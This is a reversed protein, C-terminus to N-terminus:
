VLLPSFYSQRNVKRWAKPSNGYYQRFQRFFHNISQYGVVEAIEEVSKETTLLLSKAAALRRRIIWRNLPEGTQSKVFQTLYAPSFGLNKAVDRLSISEQYHENIYDYVQKLQSSSEFLNAFKSFEDTEHETSASTEQFKQFKFAFWQKLISRRKIQASISGVLQEPTFPKSLYDNAGLEMGERIEQSTGKGTLFIVPIIATNINKRLNKLVEYGDTKPMVIDCVVVDPLYQHAKEIGISGNKADIVEYGKLELCDLLLKRTDRENEIVLVKNM